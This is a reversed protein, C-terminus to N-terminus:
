TDTGAMHPWGSFVGGDCSIQSPHHHLLAEMAEYRGRGVAATGRNYKEKVRIALGMIRGSCAEAKGARAERHSICEAAALTFSAGSQNTWPMQENECLIAAM